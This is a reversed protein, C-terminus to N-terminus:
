QLVNITKIHYVLNFNSERYGITRPQFEVGCNLTCHICGAFTAALQMQVHSSYIHATLLSSYYVFLKDSPYYILVIFTSHTSQCYWYYPYVHTFILDVSDCSGAM